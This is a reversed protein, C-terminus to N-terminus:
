AVTCGAAAVHVLWHRCQNLPPDLLQQMLTQTGEAHQAAEQPAKDVSVEATTGALSDALAESLTNSPNQQVTHEQSSDAATM